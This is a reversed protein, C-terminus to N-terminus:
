CLLPSNNIANTKYYWSELLLKVPHVFRNFVIELVEIWRFRPENCHGRRANNTKNIFASQGPYTFCQNLVIFERYLLEVTVTSIMFLINLKYSM